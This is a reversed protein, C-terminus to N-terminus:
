EGHGASRERLRRVVRSLGANFLRHDDLIETGGKLLADALEEITRELVKFGARNAFVFREDDVVEALRVRARQGDAGEIEFWTGPPLELLRRSHSERENAALAERAEEDSDGPDPEFQSLCRLHESELARLLKNMEFPDYLVASLGEGLEHLLLPIEMVLRQSDEAERDVEVSWMLREMIACHRVWAESDPGSNLYDLFLVRSWADELLRRVVEPPDRDELCRQIERTVRQRAQEVVKRGRIARESHRVEADIGDGPADDLADEEDELDGGGLLRVVDDQLTPLTQQLEQVMCELLLYEVFPGAVVRQHARLFLDLVNHGSLPNAREAGAHQRGGPLAANFAEAVALDTHAVSRLLAQELADQGPIRREPDSGGDGSFPTRVPGIRESFRFELGARIVEEMDHRQLRVQRMGRRCEEVAEAGLSARLEGHAREYLADDAHEMARRLASVLRREARQRALEVRYPMAQGRGAETRALYVVNDVKRDNM